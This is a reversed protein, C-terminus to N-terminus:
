SPLQLKTLWDYAAEIAGSVLQVFIPKLWPKFLMLWWPLPIFPSLVDYLETAWAIVIAKKEPGSNGLSRAAQVALLIFGYVLQGVEALTLGDAAKVKADAIYSRVQEILDM